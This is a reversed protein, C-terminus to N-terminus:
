GDNRSELIMWTPLPILAMPSPYGGAAFCVITFGIAFWVWTAIFVYGINRSKAFRHGNM